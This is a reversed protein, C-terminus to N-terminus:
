IGNFRGKKDLASSNPSSIHPEPSPSRVGEKLDQLFDDIKLKVNKRAL